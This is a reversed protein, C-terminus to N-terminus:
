LYFHLKKKLESSLEANKELDLQSSWYTHVLSLIIARIYSLPHKVLTFLCCIFNYICIVFVPLRNNLWVIVPRSLDEDLEWPCAPSLRSQNWVFFDVMFWLLQFSGLVLCCYMKYSTIRLSLGYVKAVVPHEAFTVKIIYMYKLLHMCFCVCCRPFLLLWTLVNVLFFILVEKAVTINCLEFGNSCVPSPLINCLPNLHPLYLRNHFWIKSSLDGLQLTLLKNSVCRRINM